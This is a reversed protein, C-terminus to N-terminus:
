AAAAEESKGQLLLVQGLAANIDTNNADLELAKRYAVEAESVKGAEKLAHGYQVWIQPKNPKLNLADRYYRVALEWERADRAHNALAITASRRRNGNFRQAVKGLWSHHGLQVRTAPNDDAGVAIVAKFWKASAAALADRERRLADGAAIGETLKSQLTLCEARLTERESTSEPTVLFDIQEKTELLVHKLLSLRQANLESEPFAAAAEAGGRRLWAYFECGVASGIRDVRWDTIKLRALELLLLQFSSPVFIWAHADVYASSEDEGHNLIAQYIDNLPPSLLTLNEISHQGWAIAGNASVGYGLGDFMTKKSHRIRHAIHSTLADGTSTLPRFYDFCFRKDPIALVMIGTPALLTAASDLFAVIDPAHEIVHCAIFADFTGHLEPPVAASLPGDRWVFDVEEICDIDVGDRGNQHRYKEILESKTAVDITKTNWGKSKPAVPNYSAGIEIISATRRIPELLDARTLM